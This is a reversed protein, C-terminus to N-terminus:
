FSFKESLEFFGPTFNLNFLESVSGVGFDKNFLVYVTYIYIYMCVCVCMYVTYQTGLRIRPCTELM